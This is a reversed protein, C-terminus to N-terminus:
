GGERSLRFAGAALPEPEVGFALRLPGAALVAGPAGQALVRGEHLLV